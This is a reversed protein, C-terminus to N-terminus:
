VALRHIVALIQRPVAPTGPQPNLLVSYKNPKEKGDRELTMEFLQMNCLADIKAPKQQFVIRAARLPEQLQPIIKEIVGPPPLDQAAAPGSLFVGATFLMHSLRRMSARRIASGNM